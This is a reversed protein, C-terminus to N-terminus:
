KGKALGQSTTKTLLILRMNPPIHAYSSHIHETQLQLERKGLRLEPASLNDKELVIDLQTGYKILRQAMKLRM